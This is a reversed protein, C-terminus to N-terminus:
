FSVGLLRGEPTADTLRMRVFQKLDFGSEFEDEHIVDSNITCIYQFGRERSVAAARQLAHAIQREDVGDFIVSDHVLLGPSPQRAAWLEALTLDYCFIKMNGIGGSKARPIEVDFKFGSKEVQIRLQGPERYLAESHSAFAMIARKWIEERADYDSRTRQLLREREVALSSKGSEVKRLNSIRADLERVADVTALHVQQLRSYEELAGHEQLIALLSARQSTLRGIKEDRQLCGQELRVVEDNLFARRNNILRAHFTRVEDLRKRVSEPLASGAEEYLRVVDAEDPPVAVDLSQRYYGILNRDSINENAAEHIQRTLDSAESEIQRYQPHVRFSKLAVEEKAARAALIVREAELEGLKGSLGELVGSRAAARLANLAKDKQRLAECEQADEWALGLLFANAVQKDWEQQKRHHEFPNSFADKGRRVFYSILSRFGPTWKDGKEKASLGFMAQGLFRTWEADTVQRGGEISKGIELGDVDGMVVIRKPNGVARTVDLTREGLRLGVTFEWGSLKELGDLSSGFAFHLIEILTSKGLGNRSDKKTSDKTRDAVVVNFGPEFTISRFSSKNARVSTIM